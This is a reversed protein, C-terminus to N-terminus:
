RAKAEYEQKTRELFPAEFEIEYDAINKDGVWKVDVGDNVPKALQMGQDVISQICLRLVNKDVVEGNRSKTLPM